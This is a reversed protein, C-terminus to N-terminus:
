SNQVSRAEIKCTEQHLRYDAKLTNSTPRHVRWSVVRFVARLTSGDRWAIKGDDVVFRDPCRAFLGAVISVRAEPSVTVDQRDRHGIGDTEILAIGGQMV